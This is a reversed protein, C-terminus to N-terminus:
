KEDDETLEEDRELTEESLSDRKPEPHKSVAVRAPRITRDGMVYGPRYEKVIIGPPHEDTEHMEIAEHRHPDFPQGHSSVPIINHQLLAEKFQELIMKFGIAWNKVEDSMHATHTLASELNDLPHLIDEVVDTLANVARDEAEKRLRKRQNEMEALLRVYKEQCEKAERRLRDNEAAMAVSFGSDANVDETESQLGEAPNQIDDDQPEETPDSM